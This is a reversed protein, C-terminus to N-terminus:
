VSERKFELSHNIVLTDEAEKNVSTFSPATVRAIMDGALAANFIGGETILGTGVGPPFESRYTISYDEVSCSAIAIRAIEIEM